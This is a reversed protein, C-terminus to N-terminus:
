GDLRAALVFMHSRIVTSKHVHVNEYLNETAVTMCARVSKCPPSVHM